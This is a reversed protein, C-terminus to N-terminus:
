GAEREDRRLAPVFILKTGLFLPSVYAYVQAHLRSNLLTLAYLKTM